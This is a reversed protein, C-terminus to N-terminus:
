HLFVSKTPLILVIFIHKIQDVNVTKNRHTTNSHAGTCQKAQPGIVSALRDQILCLTDPSLICRNSTYFLPKYYVNIYVTFAGIATYFQISNDVLHRM